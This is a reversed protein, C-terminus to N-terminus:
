YCKPQGLTILDDRQEERKIQVHTKCIESRHLVSPYAEDKRGAVFEGYKARIRCAVSEDVVYISRNTVDCM